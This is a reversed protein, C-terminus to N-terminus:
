IFVYLFQSREFANASRTRVDSRQSRPSVNSGNLRGYCRQTHTDTHRCVSQKMQKQKLTYVTAPSGIPPSPDPDYPNRSPDYRPENISEIINVAESQSVAPACPPPQGIVIEYEPLARIPRNPRTTFKPRPWILRMNWPINVGKQASSYERMNLTYQPTESPM